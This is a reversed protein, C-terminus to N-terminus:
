TSKVDQRKRLYEHFYIAAVSGVAGGTGLPLFLVWGKDVILTISLIEFATIGYSTLVMLKIEKHAVNRQQFVRLFVYVLPVLFAILYIM